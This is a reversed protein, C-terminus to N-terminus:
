QGSGRDGRCIVRNQRYEIRRPRWFPVLWRSARHHPAWMGYEWVELTWAVPMRGRLTVALRCSDSLGLELCELADDDRDFRRSWGEFRVRSHRGRARLAIAFGGPSPAPIDLAFRTASFALGPWRGLKRVARAIVPASRARRNM